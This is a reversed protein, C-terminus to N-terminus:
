LLAFPESLCYGVAHVTKIPIPEGGAHSTKARLRRVLADLARGSYEDIRPYLLRQLQDRTVPEGPAELLATLVQMERSTLGIIENAPTILKWATRDLTWRANRFAAVSDQEQLPTDSATALRELLRTIAQALVRTPFPKTLYLDCGAEYGRFFDDESDHATLMIIGMATNTRCYEALVLGSQDPLGVDLVAVTFPGAEALKCYFERGSGVGVVQFGSLELGEVISERLDADDEVLVIRPTTM